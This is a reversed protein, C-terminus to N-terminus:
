RVDRKNQATKTGDVRSSTRKSSYVAQHVSYINALLILDV